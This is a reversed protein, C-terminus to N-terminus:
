GIRKECDNVVILLELTVFLHCFYDRVLSRTVKKNVSYLSMVILFTVSTVDTVTFFYSVRRAKYSFSNILLNSFSGCYLYIISTVKKIDM